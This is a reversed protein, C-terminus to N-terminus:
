YTEIFEDVGYLAGQDVKGRMLRVGRMGCKIVIQDASIEPKNVPARSVTCDEGGRDALAELAKITSNLADDYTTAWSRDAYQLRDGTFRLAYSTKSDKDVVMTLDASDSPPVVIYKSSSFRKLVEQKTMGLSVTVVGLEMSVDKSSSWSDM